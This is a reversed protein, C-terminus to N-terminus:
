YSKNAPVAQDTVAMVLTKRSTTGTKRYLRSLYAEVTKRSYHLVEAIEKNSLGDRLLRVLELESETLQDGDSHRRVRSLSVNTERAISQVSKLAARAGLAKFLEHARRVVEPDAGPEAALLLCARAELLPTGEARAAEMVARAGAFDERLEAATLAATWELM